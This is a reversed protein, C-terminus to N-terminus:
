LMRRVGPLANINQQTNEALADAERQAMMLASPLYLQQDLKYAGTWRQINEPAHAQAFVPLGGSSRHGNISRRMTAQMNVITDHAPWRFVKREYAHLHTDPSWEFVCVPAQLDSKFYEKEAQVIRQHWLRCPTKDVDREDRLNLIYLDRYKTNALTPFHPDRYIRGVQPIPRHTNYASNGFSIYAILVEEYYPAEVVQETNLNCLEVNLDRLWYYLAVLKFISDEESTADPLRSLIGALFNPHERVMSGWHNWHRENREICEDVNLLNSM